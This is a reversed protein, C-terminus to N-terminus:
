ISKFFNVCKVVKETKYKFLLQWTNNAVYIHIYPEIQKLFNTYWAIELLIGSKTPNYTNEIM